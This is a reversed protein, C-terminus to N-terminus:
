AVKGLTVARERVDGIKEYVPLEEEQRIRLAEDLEGRRYLIDAVKGLTVARSRVDGLENCLPGVVSRLLNLAATWDGRLRYADSAKSLLEIRLKKEEDHKSDRFVEALEIYYNPSELEHQYPNRDFRRYSDDSLGADPPPDPFLFVHSRVSWLDPSVGACLEALWPPGTLLIAHPVGQILM